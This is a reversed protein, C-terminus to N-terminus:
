AVEIRRLPGFFSAYGLGNWLDVFQRDEVFQLAFVRLAPGIARLTEDQTKNTQAAVEKAKAEILSVTYIADEAATRQDKQALDYIVQEKIAERNTFQTALRAGEPFRAGLDAEIDDVAAALEPSQSKLSQWSSFGSQAALAELATTMVRKSDLFESMQARPTGKGSLATVQAGVLGFPAGHVDQDYFWRDLDRYAPVLRAVLGMVGTLGGAERVSDETWVQPIFLQVAQAATDGLPAHVGGPVFLSTIGQAIKGETDKDVIGDLFFRGPSIGYALNNIRSIEGLIPAHKEIIAKLDDSMSTGDEGTAQYWRRVGEHVLLNRTPAGLTFDVMASLQKRSFLFPFFIFHATNGFATQKTGYQGIQMVTERIEELDGDTLSGAKAKKQALWWAQAYEVERPKFGLVGRHLLRLQLEDFNQNAARGYLVRDGFRVMEDVAEQGRVTQGTFPSTWADNDHVFKKPNTVAKIPIDGGRFKGFMIGEAYRSADFTPSLSFQLAMHFRRLHQPLYGYSGKKWRMPVKNVLKTPIFNTTRMFDNFGPLGNLRISAGLARATQIPHAVDGGFAAGQHLARKIKDAAVYVDEGDKVTKHLNLAEVIDESTLDRPDVKFLERTVEGTKDHERRIISGWKVELRIGQKKAFEPDYRTKLSDYLGDAIQKGDMNKVVDVNDLHRVISHYRLRGIDAKDVKAGLSAIADFFNKKRGYEALGTIEAQDLFHTYDIMDEGTRVAMYRGLGEEELRATLADDRRPRSAATEKLYKVLRREVVAEAGGPRVAQYIDNDIIGKTRMELLVNDLDKGADVVAMDLQEAIAANDFDDRTSLTLDDLAERTEKYRTAASEYAGMEKGKGGFQEFDQQVLYEDKVAPTFRFGQDSRGRLPVWGEPTFVELAESPVAEPSVWEAWDADEPWMDTKQLSVKSKDVRLLMADRVNRAPLLSELDSGEEAFYVGTIEDKRQRGPSLGGTKIADLNGRPTAHYLYKDSRPALDQMKDLSPYIDDGFGFPERVPLPSLNGMTPETLPGFMTSYSRNLYETAEQHQTWFEFDFGKQALFDQMGTPNAMGEQKLENGLPTSVVDSTKNSDRAEQLVQAKLKSREEVMMEAELTRRRAAEYINKPMPLESIRQEVVKSARGEIAYQLYSDNVRAGLTATDVGNSTRGMVEVVEDFSKQLGIVKGGQKTRNFMAFPLLAHKSSMERMGNAVDDAKWPLLRSPFVLSGITLDTFTGVPGLSEKITDESTTAQVGTSSGEKRLKTALNQDADQLEEFDKYGRRQAEGDLGADSMEGIARSVITPAALGTYIAQAAKGAGSAQIRALPAKDLAGIVKNAIGTARKGTTAAGGAAGFAAGTAFDKLVGSADGGTLLGVAANGTGGLLAGGVIRHRLAAQTAQNMLGPAVESRAAMKWGERMAIQRAGGAARVGAVAVQGSKLVASATMITSLAAFLHKADGSRIEDIPSLAGVIQNWNGEEDEDDDFLDGFFGAAGGIAGGVLAGVGSTIPAFPGGLLGVGAGIGAGVAAGGLLGGEQAVEVPHTIATAADSLIGKAIGYMGDFVSTPVTYGLYRFLTQPGAALFSGGSRSTNFADRSARRDANASQDDWQGTPVYTPPLYGTDVLGQQYGVLDQVPVYKPDKSLLEQLVESTGFGSEGYPAGFPEGSMELTEDDATSTAAHYRVVPPADSWRQTEALRRRFYALESM